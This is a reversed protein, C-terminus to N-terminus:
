FSLYQMLSLLNDGWYMAIWGSVCLYPGFALPINRDRGAFIIACCGIITGLVSSILIVVPIMQWGLWAGIAASLKFDGYGMGEKGTIWKFLWFLLWLPMYGFIAGIVADEITVFFGGLNLILGLWLLPLTIQDPLIKERGDIVALVILVYSFILSFFTQLCLGYATLLLATLLGTGLEVLPYQMSIPTKCAICRGRLFCYSLIPINHIAKIITGCSPCRSRPTSLSIPEEPLPDLDLFHRSERTWEAELMMPLRLMVVNLFSGIISGFVLGTLALATPSINLDFIM